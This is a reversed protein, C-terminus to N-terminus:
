GTILELLRRHYTCQSREVATYRYQVALLTPVRTWVGGKGTQRQRRVARNETIQDLRLVLSLRFQCVYRLTPLLRNLVVRPVSLNEYANM